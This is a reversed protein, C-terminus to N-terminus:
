RLLLSRSVSTRLQPNGPGGPCPCGPQRPVLLLGAVHAVCARSHQLGVGRLYLAPRLPRECSRCSQRHGAPRMAGSHDAQAALVRDGDLGVWPPDLAVVYALRALGKGVQQQDASRGSAAGQRQKVTTLPSPQLVSDKPASRSASSSGSSNSMMAPRLSGTSTVSGALLGARALLRRAREVRPIRHSSPTGRSPGFPSTLAM